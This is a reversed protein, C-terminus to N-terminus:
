DAPSHLLRCFATNSRSNPTGISPMREELYADLLSGKIEQNKPGQWAGKRICTSVKSRPYAPGMGGILLCTAASLPDNAM